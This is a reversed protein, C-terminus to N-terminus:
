LINYQITDYWLIDYWILATAWFPVYANELPFAWVSIDALKLPFFTISIFDPFIISHSQFRIQLLLIFNPLPLTSFAQLLDNFSLYLLAPTTNFLSSSSWSLNSAITCPHYFSSRFSFYILRLPIPRSPSISSPYLVLNKMIIPWPYLFFFRIRVFFLNKTQENEIRLFQFIILLVPLPHLLQIADNLSEM